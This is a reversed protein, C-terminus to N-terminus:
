NKNFNTILDQTKIDLNINIRLTLIDLYEIMVIKQKLLLEQNEETLENYKDSDIFNNLKMIKNSLDLYEVILREQYNIPECIIRPGCGFQMSNRFAEAKTPELKHTLIKNEIIANFMELSITYDMYNIDKRWGREECEKNTLPKETFHVFCEYDIYKRCNNIM